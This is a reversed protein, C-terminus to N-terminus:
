HRELDERSRLRRDFLGPRLRAALLVVFCAGFAAAIAWGAFPVLPGPVRTLAPAPGFMGAMWLGAIM